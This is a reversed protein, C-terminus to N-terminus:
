CHLPLRQAMLLIEYREISTVFGSSSIYFNFSNVNIYFEFLM